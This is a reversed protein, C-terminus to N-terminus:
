EKTDKEASEIVLALELAKEYTLGKEALLHQQIGDHNIGVFFFITM